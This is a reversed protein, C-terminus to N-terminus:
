DYLLFIQSKFSIMKALQFLIILIPTISMKFEVIILIIAVIIVEIIPVEPPIPLIILLIIFSSFIGLVSTAFLIVFTQKPSSNLYQRTKKQNIFYDETFQYLIASLVMACFIPINPSLIRLFITWEGLIDNMNTEYLMIDIISESILLIISYICSICFIYTFIRISPFNNMIEKMNDSKLRGRLAIQFIIILIPNISTILIAISRTLFFNVAREFFVQLQLTLLVTPSESLESVLFFFINVSFAGTTGVFWISVCIDILSFIPQQKKKYIKTLNKRNLLYVCAYFSMSLVFDTITFIINELFLLDGIGFSYYQAINRILEIAAIFLFILLYLNTNVRKLHIVDIPTNEQSTM